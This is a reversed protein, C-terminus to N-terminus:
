RLVLFTGALKDHLARKGTFLPWLVCPLVAVALLVLHVPNGVRELRGSFVLFLIAPAWGWLICSRCFMRWRSAEMGNSTVVAIGLSRLVLGGRTTVAAALSLIGIAGLQLVLQEWTRGFFVHGTTLVKSLPQGEPTRLKQVESKAATREAQTSQARRAHIEAALKQQSPTLCGPDTYIRPQDLVKSFRDAIYIEFSRLSTADSPQTSQMKQHQHLAEQLVYAEPTLPSADMTRDPVIPDLGQMLLSTLTVLVPFFLCGFLVGVRLRTSIEAPRLLLEALRKKVAGLDPTTPLNILFERAKLPLPLNPEHLRAESAPKGKLASIAVLKLFASADTASTESSPAEIDQASFDLLKLTGESTIWLKGLSLPEPTSGDLSAAELERALDLLWHRVTKWPHPRQLLQLFPSGSPSEFVEWAAGGSQLSQIWRLRGPRNPHHVAASDKSKPLIWVRRHLQTDYGHWGNSDSGLAGLVRYPGLVHSSDIKPIHPEPHPVTEPAEGSTAQVVRTDTLLDTATAYGNKVRATLCLAAPYIYPFLGGVLLFLLPHEEPQSALIQAASVPGLFILARLLAKGIGPPNRQSNLVRLGLLKKGPTAGWRSEFLTYFALAFGLWVVPAWASNLELTRTLSNRNLLNKLLLLCGILFYDMTGAALRRGLTAPVPATSAFPVLAERLLGYNPFRESAPKALCRLVVAALAKPIEPRVSRPSPASKELAAAMVAVMNDAPFPTQGTLLYFLTAGVSYIESRVDLPEARLQEPSSFAPTGLFCNGSSLTAEANALTSISLGFDGIKVLGTEETFCNSPKIDRHLIGVKYAAELGSLIQLIADVAAPVSMPGSAKVRDQLTGGPLLEMTIVPTDEIEETGFVYVTHPHNLAAALRGERLFRRRAEDSELANGLVKVAVRRGNGLDEAEYVAGMGGRGLLRLVRYRGFDFPFLPPPVMRLEGATGVPNQSFQSALGLKLLCRACLGHAEAPSLPASCEICSRSNMSITKVVAM